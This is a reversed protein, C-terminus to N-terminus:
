CGRRVTPPAGPKSMAAVDCVDGLGISRGSPSRSQQKWCAEAQHQPKRSFAGRQIEMISARSPARAFSASSAPSKSQKSVSAAAAEVKKKFPTQRLEAAELRAAPGVVELDHEQMADAAGENDGGEPEEKTRVGLKESYFEAFFPLTGDKQLCESLGMSSASQETTCALTTEGQGSWCVHENGMVVEQLNQAVCTKVRARRWPSADDRFCYLVEPEQGGVRSPMRLIPIGKLSIRPIRHLSAERRMEKESLVIFTREMEVGVVVQNELSTQYCESGVKKNKVERAHQVTRAFKEDQGCTQALEVMHHQLLSGEVLSLM